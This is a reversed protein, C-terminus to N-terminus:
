GSLSDWLALVAYSRWPRCDEVLALREKPTLDPLAHAVGADTELFADPHGLARMAIYNASWPGIGRIQLLAEMQDEAVASADLDLAGDCMLAAIQAIARSRTKILGLKGFADEISPLSCVAAASPWARDLESIGTELKEGYREVIRAALDNAAKVSIQQGIVARCAIEFPDFCGPVRVGEAHLGSVSGQLPALAEAVAVPDSDTDFMRRVRAIIEPVVATLEDSITVILQNRSPDDEVRVWGSAANGDAVELRVARTYSVDDVWEVHGLARGRFFALLESFGYPPRYSVRVTITGAHIGAKGRKKRVDSPTLRYHEKFADNFRRVSGFGSAKAVLSVPLSTDTLLSKALLLRCTRLYQVPTVGYEAEFARRLHRGTYGLKAAISEISVSSSCRAQLMHAARRALNSRADVLSLGPALEPRCTMCPRFGAAEAEAATRFFTCNEYKPMKAKCVTRCYIGTSSVGVFVQGDFRTDGSEFAKYLARRREESANLDERTPTNSLIAGVQERKREQNGQRSDLYGVGGHKVLQKRVHM